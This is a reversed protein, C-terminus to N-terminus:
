SITRGLRTRVLRKTLLFERLVVATVQLLILFRGNGFSRNRIVRRFRRFCNLMLLNRSLNVFDFCHDLQQRIPDVM